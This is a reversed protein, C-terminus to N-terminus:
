RRGGVHARALDLGDEQWLGTHCLVCQFTDLVEFDPIYYASLSGVATIDFQAQARNGDAVHVQWRDAGEDWVVSTVHANFRIDRRGGMRSSGSRSGASVCGTCRM